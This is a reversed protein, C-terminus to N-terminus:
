FLSMQTGDEREPATWQPGRADLGAIRAKAREHLYAAMEPALLNDPEHPFYYVERLGQAFWGELRAVWENAREYDTPHLGNGVFRVMSMGNSLGMHLVDRRGAVDTLVAPRNFHVLTSLLEDRAKPECFWSEHRVEVALPLEAPFAELFRRLLPLRDHGFYPPLQMFCCGLKDQLGAIAQCFEPILSGGLGLAKSHSILQPVKPCFRFDESSEERWKRVLDADPIRYHTTNLEITNFQRSYVSLFDKAKTGKPYAKGVWEKMSWGTCGIYLRPPGQREPLGDLLAKNGPPDAPLRFDVVAPDAVKGFKM